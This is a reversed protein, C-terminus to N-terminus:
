RNEREGKLPFAVYHFLPTRPQASIHGEIMEGARWDAAGQAFRHVAVQFDLSDTVASPSPASAVRLIYHTTEGRSLM